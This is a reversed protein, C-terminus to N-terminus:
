DDALVIYAISILGTLTFLQNDASINADDILLNFNLELSGDTNDFIVSNSSSAGRVVPSVGGTAAGLATSPILNVETGSLTADATPTTGISYDGDFTDQTGAATLKSVKAYTVAGLFLINGEPFDGVVATGWGVGTAGTTTITTNIVINQKVIPTASARGRKRSRELGKM